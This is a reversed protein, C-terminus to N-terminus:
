LDLVEKVGKLFGKLLKIGNEKTFEFPKWECPKGTAIVICNGGTVNALVEDTLPTSINM